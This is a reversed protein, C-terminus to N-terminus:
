AALQLRNKKIRETLVHPVWAGFKQAFGINHLNNLITQHNCKMKEALERSTQRGDEKLHAKLLEQDLLLPRGSRSKDNLNFDGNKFKAFWKQATSEGITGEGYVSCIDRAAEVAKQGRHFAFFLLHRFHENKGGPYEM